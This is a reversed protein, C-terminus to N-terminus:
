VRSRAMRMAAIWAAQGSPMRSTSAWTDDPAVRGFATSASARIGTANRSCLSVASVQVRDGITRVLPPPAIVPMRNELWSMCGIAGFACFVFKFGLDAWKGNGVLYTWGRLGYYSWTIMTSIAFLMAAVAIILPFWSIKREFAASTMDIGGKYAEFFTPDAAM